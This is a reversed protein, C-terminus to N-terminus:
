FKTEVIVFLHLVTVQIFFYSYVV